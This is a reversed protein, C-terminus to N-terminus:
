EDDGNQRMMRSLTKAARAPDDAIARKSLELPDRNKKAREVRERLAAEGERRRAKEEKAHANAKAARRNAAFLKLGAVVCVAALAAITLLEGVPTERLFPVILPAEGLRGTADFWNGANGICEACLRRLRKECGGGDQM